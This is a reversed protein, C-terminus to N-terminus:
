FYTVLDCREKPEVRWLTNHLSHYGMHSIGYQANFYHVSILANSFLCVKACFWMYLISMLKVSLEYLLGGIYSVIKGNRTHFLLGANSLHKSQDWSSTILHFIKRTVPGKHPFNVLWRHIERVFALSASSQHKRQDVGSYVTSYVIMLRTIQSAMASMMVDHYHQADCLEPAFLRSCNGQNVSM